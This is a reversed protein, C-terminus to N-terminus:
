EISRKFLYCKANPFYQKVSKLNMNLDDIMVIDNIGDMDINDRLYEGKTKQNNTYYVNYYQYSIEIDKFEQKTQNISCENRSTLFILKSDTQIVRKMLNIFGDYDTHSPKRNRIYTGYMTTACCLVEDETLEPFTAKIKKYFYSLNREYYLLTDDIDCIVLTGENISIDNFTNIKFM